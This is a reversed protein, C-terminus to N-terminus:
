AWIYTYDTKHEKMDLNLITVINYSM